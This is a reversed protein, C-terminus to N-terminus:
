APAESQQPASGYRFEYYCYKVFEVAVISLSRGRWWQEADFNSTAVSYPQIHVTRPLVRRFTREARKMHYGSTILIISDLGLRDLIAAAEIANEFTSQSRKELVIAEREADTLASTNYISDIDADSNVGSLILRTAAGRRLLRLGEDTRGKGGTLVVIADAKSAAAGYTIIDAVFGTLLYIFVSPVFVAVILISRRASNTM